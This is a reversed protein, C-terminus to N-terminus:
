RWDGRYLNIRTDESQTEYYHAMALCHAVIQSKKFSRGEVSFDFQNAYYAAKVTWAEAVAANLNYSRGTLYYTINNTDSAFIFEGDSDFSVYDTLVSGAANTIRVIDSGSATGELNKYGSSYKSYATGALSYEAAVSIPSEYLDKRNRDLINQITNDSLSVTGADSALTRVESILSSLGARTM